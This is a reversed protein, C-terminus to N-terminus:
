AKAPEGPPKVPDSMTTSMVAPPPAAPPLPAIKWFLPEFKSWDGLVEKGLASETLEVHRHVIERLAKTELTDALRTLGVMARNCLKEFTGERDLVYAIGGSMGAAFNKGTAGLVVVRGNTMYECGHDGIGEVVATAGSNRVAFREGARGRVYLAGGTAGYLVTNGCISNQAPDFKASSSPVVVIEGGSMGKGVYDNSEGVLTIRVGRVLFAGLSQGASGALNLNLTGDPLGEDGYRYAIEGSLQSGISRNTNKVKYKLSLRHKTQLCSKADQLIVDDLTRDELKDNREWTHFRPLGDDIRPMALLRSLDISNAKPHDPVERQELYDTRGIIDNLTRAGISALHRRVEEAVANFFYVVNDPTGKYKARLKEDQTTV